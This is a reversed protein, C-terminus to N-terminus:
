PYTVSAATYSEVLANRRRLQHDVINGVRVTDIEAYAVYPSGIVIPRLSSDSPITTTVALAALLTAVASSYATAYTSSVAGQTIASVAPSPAYFRGRGKRGVQQTRLSAVVSATPDGLGSVQGVPLTGTYTLLAPSGQAYPPAPIVNGTPAAIPYLRLTRLEESQSFLTSTGLFDRVAPGAQDNLFDGPDFDSAGGEVRWNSSITWNTETRNISAAVVDWENSPLNGIPEPGNTLRWSLRIGFQWIENALAPAGTTYGGQAVLYLHKEGAM